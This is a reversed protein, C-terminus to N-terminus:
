FLRWKAVDTKEEILDFLCAVYMRISLEFIVFLDHYMLITVINCMINKAELM